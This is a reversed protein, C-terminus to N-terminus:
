NGFELNNEGRREFLGFKNQFCGPMSDISEKVQIGECIFLPLILDNILLQNESVLARITPSQRLRRNRKLM